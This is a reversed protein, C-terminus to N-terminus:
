QQQLPMVRNLARSLEEQIVGYIGCRSIQFCLRTWWQIKLPSSQAVSASWKSLMVTCNLYKWHNHPGRRLNLSLPCFTISLPLPAWSPRKTITQVWDCECIQLMQVYHSFFFANVIRPKENKSQFNTETFLDRDSNFCSLVRWFYNKGQQTMEHNGLIRHYRDMVQGQNIEGNWYLTIRSILYLQPELLLSFCLWVTNSRWLFDNIQKLWAYTMNTKQKATRLNWYAKNNDEM